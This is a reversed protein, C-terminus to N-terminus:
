VQVEVEFETVERKLAGAEGCVKKNDVMECYTTRWDIRTDKAHAVFM